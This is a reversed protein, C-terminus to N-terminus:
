SLGVFDLQSIDLLFGGGDAINFTCYAPLMRDLLQFGQLRTLQTYDADSMGAPRQTEVYLHSRESLWTGGGLDYNPDGPNITPWYTLTPPSALSAGESFSANVFADGMLDTLATEIDDLTVSTVAKYHAACRQRLQWKQDSPRAPVALVEVWYGIGDDSSGPLANSRLTEPIRFSTFALYRAKALNQCHVLTGVQSSYASGKMAILERYVSYAYPTTGETASETKDPSGGYDGINVERSWAPKGSPTITVTSM